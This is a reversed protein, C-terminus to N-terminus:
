STLHVILLENLLNLDALSNKAKLETADLLLIGEKLKKIGYGQATQIHRSLINGKMYPFQQTIEESSGGRALICGIELETQFQNRIQRLLSLLPTGEDLMAKSIRLASAADRKFIAEGLQWINELPISICIADVDQISISPRDGVYCILKNLEQLLLSKDTGIQKVLSLSAQPDITKKQNAAETIVWSQLTKEKEWPKEEAIDLIVGAKEIKKYFNTSASLANCSLILYTQPPLKAFYPDLKELSAKTLKEAQNILIVRRQAFFGPSDLESLIEHISQEDAQFQTQSLERKKEGKLLAEILKDSAAKRSFSDKDLLMYLPTFHNPASEELHKEFARLNTYKM